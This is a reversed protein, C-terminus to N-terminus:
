GKVGQSKETESTELPKKAEMGLVLYLLHSLNETTRLLLNM